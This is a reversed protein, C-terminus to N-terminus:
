YHVLFHMNSCFAIFLILRFLLLHFHFICLYLILSILHILLILLFLVSLSLFSISIFTNANINTNPNPNLNPYMLFLQRDRRNSSLKIIGFSSMPTKSKTNEEGKPNDSQPPNERMRFVLMLDMRGKLQLLNTQHLTLLYTTSMSM